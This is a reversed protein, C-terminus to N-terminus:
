CIVIVILLFGIEGMENSVLWGDVLLWCVGGGAWGCGMELSGHVM